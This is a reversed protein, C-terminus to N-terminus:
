ESGEGGAAVGAVGAEPSPSPGAEREAELLPQLLKMVECVREGLEIGFPDYLPNAGEFEIVTRGDRGERVVAALDELGATVALGTLILMPKDHHVSFTAYSERSSGEIYLKCEYSAGQSRQAEMGSSRFFTYAESLYKKRAPNRVYRNSRADARRQEIADRIEPAPLIQELAFLHRGDQNEFVSFLWCEISFTADGSAENLYHCVSLTSPSFEEGVLVVVQAENVETDPGVQEEIRKAAEESAGVQTILASEGKKSAHAAYLDALSLADMEAYEAAYCLAQVVADQAVEGRKLEVVLLDGNADLGILDSRQEDSPHDQRALWLIQRGFLGTGSSALWGELDRPETLGMEELRKTRLRTLSKEQEDISYLAIGM